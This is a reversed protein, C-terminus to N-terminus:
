PVVQILDGSTSAMFKLPLDFFAGGEVDGPDFNDMIQAYSGKIGFTASAWTANNSIEVAIDNEDYQKAIIGATNSDYKIGFTGTALFEPLGRGMTDPIGSAGYGYFKVQSNLTLDFKNMVVDVSDISRKTALDHITRYTTPYASPSTPAAQGGSINYRTKLTIDMKFRGGDTAGDAYIRMTDVFCGPYIESNSGEPSILAVTLAGTNDTDTDGNACEVGTFNYPIDYSAPSTGVTVGMVNELFIPALTQDYFATFSIEKVKGQQSVYVDAKKATNGANHRRDLFREPARSVSPYGDINVYQMATVNATGLTTEAKVAVQFQEMAYMGSDIAM